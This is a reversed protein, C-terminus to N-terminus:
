TWTKGLLWHHLLFDAQSYMLCPPSHASLIQNRHATHLTRHFEQIGVPKPKHTLFIRIESQGTM